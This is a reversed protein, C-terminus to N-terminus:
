ENKISYTNWYPTLFNAYKLRYCVFESVSCIHDIETENQVEFLFVKEFSHDYFKLFTVVVLKNFEWSRSEAWCIGNDNKLTVLKGNYKEQTKKAQQPNKAIIIM